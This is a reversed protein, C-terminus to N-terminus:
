RLKNENNMLSLEHCKDLDRIKFPHCVFSLISLIQVMYQDANRLIPSWVLWRNIYMSGQHKLHYLLRHGLQISSDGGHRLFWLSICHSTCMARSIIDARQDSRWSFVAEGLHFVGPFSSLPFPLPVIISKELGSQVPSYKKM